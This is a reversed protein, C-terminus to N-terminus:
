QEDSQTDLMLVPKKNTKEIIYEKFKETLKNEILFDFLLNREADVVNRLATHNNLVRIHDAEHFYAAALTHQFCTMMNNINEELTWNDYCLPPLIDSVYGFNRKGKAFECVDKTRKNILENLRKVEDNVHSPVKVPLPRNLSKVLAEFENQITAAENILFESHGESIEDTVYAQLYTASKSIFNMLKDNVFSVLDTKTCAQAPAPSETQNM